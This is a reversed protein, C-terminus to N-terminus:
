KGYNVKKKQNIKLRIIFKTLLLFIVCIKSGDYINDYKVTLCLNEKLKSIIYFEKLNEDKNYINKNKKNLDENLYKM